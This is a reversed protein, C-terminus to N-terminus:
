VRGLALASAKLLLASILVREAPPKGESISARFREAAALDVRQGLYFHPIERKSRSMSAAIARRMEDRDFTMWPRASAPEKPEVAHPPAPPPEVAHAPEKPSAERRIAREVDSLVIPGGPRSPTVREPSIGAERARRRAAPSMRQAQPARQET